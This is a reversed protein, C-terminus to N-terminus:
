RLYFIQSIIKWTFQINWLTGLALFIHLFSHFFCFDSLSQSRVAKILTSYKEFDCFNPCMKKMDSARNTCLGILEAGQYDQYFLSFLRLAPASVLPNNDRFYSAVM